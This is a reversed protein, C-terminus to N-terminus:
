GRCSAVADRYGSDEDLVSETESITGGLVAYYHDDFRVMRQGSSCELVDRSVFSGGDDCGDYGRPLTAGDVWVSSCPEGTAEPATSSPTQSQDDARDESGTDTGCGTVLVAVLLAAVAPLRRLFSTSSM